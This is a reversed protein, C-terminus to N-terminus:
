WSLIPRSARAAHRRDNRHTPSASGRGFAIRPLTAAGALLASLSLFEGRTFKRM